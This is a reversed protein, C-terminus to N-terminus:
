KKLLNKLVAMRPDINELDCTCSGKNLDCGCGPCLGLCDEKCVVKSDIAFEIGEAIYDLLNLQEKELVIIDEDDHKQNKGVIFKESMHYHVDKIIEVLCRGCNLKLKASLQGFVEFIGDSNQVTLDATVPGDLKVGPLDLPIDTQDLIFSYQKKQKPCKNIDGLNIIPAINENM